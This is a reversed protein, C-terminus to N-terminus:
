HLRFSRLASIIIGAFTLPIVFLAMAASFAPLADHQSAGLLLYVLYAGYYMLFLAGEGRSIRNGTFFIPLCAFAVAIMVPIDFRLASPPVDVGGALGCMGLIALINFINSGVVNGVAIDREGRVAAIVSTALEPLSTGAAVITLGIVIESLGLAQAIRSAGTVLLRSGIVLLVLGGAALALDRALGRMRAPVQTAKADPATRDPSSAAGASAVVTYPPGRTEDNPSPQGTLDIGTAASQARAPGGNSRALWATYLIAALSLIVGDIRSIRGDAGVILLAASAGVMVPVDTRVLRASVTLPVILASLGLIFLVNFINSGVINGVAIDAQGHVTAILSVALEPASTGYAVVTLGIILPPVGMAAALRSASRVLLEAGVVLLALGGVVILAHM